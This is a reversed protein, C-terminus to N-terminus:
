PVDKLKTTAKLADVIERYNSKHAQLLLGSAVGDPQVYEIGVFHDTSKATLGGATGGGLSALGVIGSAAAGIAFITDNMHRRGGYTVATIRDPQITIRPGDSLKLQVSARSITLTNAWALARKGTAGLGPVGGLYRVRNWSRRQAEASSERGAVLLQFAAVLVLFLDRSRM